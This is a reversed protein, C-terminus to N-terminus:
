STSLHYRLHPFRAVYVSVGVVLIEGDFQGTFADREQPTTISIPIKVPVGMGKSVTEVIKRTSGTPSFYFCQVSNVTKTTM